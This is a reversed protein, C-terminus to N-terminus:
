RWGRRQRPLRRLVRAELRRVGAVDRMDPLEFSGAQTACVRSRNWVLANAQQRGAVHQATVQSHAYARGLCNAIQAADELGDHDSAEQLALVDLRQFEPTHSVTDLVRDLRAGLQINWTCLTLRGV